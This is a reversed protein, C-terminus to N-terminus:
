EDLGNQRRRSTVKLAYLVIDKSNTDTLPLPSASEDPVLRPFVEDFQKSIILISFILVAALSIAGNGSIGFQSNIYLRMADSIFYLFPLSLTVLLSLMALSKAIWVILRTIMNERLIEVSVYLSKEGPSCDPLCSLKLFWNDQEEVKSPIPLVFSNPEEMNAGLVHIGDWHFKIRIKRAIHFYPKQFFEDWRSVDRKLILFPDTISVFEDGVRISKPLTIAEVYRKYKGFTVSGSQRQGIQETLIDVTGQSPTSIRRTANRPM